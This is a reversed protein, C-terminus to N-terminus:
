GWVPCSHCICFSEALDSGGKILKPLAKCSHKKTPLKQQGTNCDLKLRDFDHQLFCAWHLHAERQGGCTHCSQQDQPPLKQSQAAQACCTKCVRSNLGDVSYSQRHAFPNEPPVTKFRAITVYRRMGVLPFRAGRLCLLAIRPRRQHYLKM